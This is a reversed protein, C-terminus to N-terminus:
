LGVMGKLIRVEEDTLPRYKGEKLDDLQLNGFSLRKLAIVEHKVALCMLRVQRKKGEHITIEFRSFDKGQMTMKIKAQATIGGEIAVGKELREAEEETLYGECKVRYTKDIKFRPHTLRFALEGDNTLLLLGSSNLDLRGVPKVVNRYKGVLDMVTQRGFEDQRTVLYSVPKHLIIYVFEDSIKVPKSDVSVVDKTEDVQTGLNTVIEGNVFVHGEEILTDARRRSAIGAKALFKNLRM